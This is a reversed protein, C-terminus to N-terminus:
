SKKISNIGQSHGRSIVHDVNCIVQHIANDMTSLLFIIPSQFFRVWHGEKYDRKEVKTPNIFEM